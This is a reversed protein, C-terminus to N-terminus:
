IIARVMPRLRLRIPTLRWTTCNQQEIMRARRCLPRHDFVFHELPFVAGAGSRHPSPLLEEKELHCDILSPGQQQNVNVHTSDLALTARVFAVIQVM